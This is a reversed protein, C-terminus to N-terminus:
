TVITFHQGQSIMILSIHVEAHGSNGIYACIIITNVEVSYYVFINRCSLIHKTMCEYYKPSNIPLNLIKVNIIPIKM